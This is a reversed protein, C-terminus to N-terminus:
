DENVVDWLYQYTLNANGNLETKYPSSGDWPQSLLLYFFLMSTGLNHCINTFNSTKEREYNCISLRPYTQKM